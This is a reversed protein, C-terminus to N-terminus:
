RWVFCLSYRRKRAGGVGGWQARSFYFFRQERGGERRSVCAGVPAARIGVAESFFCDFLAYGGGREKKKGTTLVNQGGDM